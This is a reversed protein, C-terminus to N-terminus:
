HPCAGEPESFGDAVPFSTGDSARVTLCARAEVPLPVVLWRLDPASESRLVEMPLDSSPDSDPGSILRFSDATSPVVGFVYGRGAIVGRTLPTLGRGSICAELPVFTQVDATGQRFEDLDFRLGACAVPGALAGLGIGPGTGTADVTPHTPPLSASLTWVGDDIPGSIRGVGSQAATRDRLAQFSAVSLSYASGAVAVVDVAPDVSSVTVWAFTDPEEWSVSSGGGDLASLVAPRGHITMNPVPLTSPSPVPTGFGDIASNSSIWTTVERGEGYGILAIQVVSNRVPVSQNPDQQFLIPRQELTALVIGHGDVQEGAVYAGSGGPELVLDPTPDPGSGSTVSSRAGDPGSSACADLLLACTLVLALLATSSRRSRTTM